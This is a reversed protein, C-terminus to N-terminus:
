YSTKMTFASRNTGRRATTRDRATASPMVCASRGTQAAGSLEV